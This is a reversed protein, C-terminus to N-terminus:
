PINKKDLCRDYVTVDRGNGSLESTNRCSGVIVHSEREHFCGHNNVLDLVGQVDAGIVESLSRRCENDLGSVM